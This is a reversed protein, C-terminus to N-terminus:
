ELILRTYFFFLFLFFVAVLRSGDPWHVPFPMLDSAPLGTREFFTSRTQKIQKTADTVARSGQGRLAFSHALGHSTPPKVRLLRFLTQRGDRRSVKATDVPRQAAVWEGVLVNFTVAIGFGCGMPSLYAPLPVFPDPSPCAPLTFSRASPSPAPLSPAPIPSPHFPLILLRTSEGCCPLNFSNQSRPSSLLRLRSCCNQLHALSSLCPM